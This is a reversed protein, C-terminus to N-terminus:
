VLEYSSSVQIKLYSSLVIFNIEMYDLTLILLNGSNVCIHSLLRVLDVTSKIKIKFNLFYVIVISQENNQCDSLWNEM